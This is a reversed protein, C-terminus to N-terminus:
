GENTKLQEIAERSLGTLNVIDDTSLGMRIANNAVELKEKEIGKELGKEIGKEMGELLGKEMGELLGEERATDLSNKLDRYYKLSDEYLRVQDPTFRAIEATEFLKEFIREKLKEPVRDLRNLNRLVYLWKDFRTELEDVTKNFKPMELYIFTLKDYFVKKTETDTLKIDYRFKNPENKDEDFVFDLIAITYVAKLEYNWDARKAQERIPFTSYYVTRDKFFNQKTKQLEVIFKEGKENECYLDFIAKRDLESTGLHESKLYTLDKIEGQEEKLLVNLFDLLLDKNPEEGFLRKFGYDTFPNIYRETFEAM